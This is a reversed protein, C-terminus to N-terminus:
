ENILQSQSPNLAAAATAAPGFTASLVAAEAAAEDTASVEVASLVVVVASLVVVVASLVVVVLTDSECPPPPLFLTVVVVEDSELVDVLLDEWPDPEPLPDPSDTVFSIIVMM